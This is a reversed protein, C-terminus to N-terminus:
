KRTAERIGFYLAAALGLSLLPNSAIWSGGHCGSVQPPTVQIARPRLISPMPGMLTIPAIQQGPRASQVSAAIPTGDGASQMITSTVSPVAASYPIPVGAPPYPSTPFVGEPQSPAAVYSTVLASTGPFLQMDVTMPVIDGMGPSNLAYPSQPYFYPGRINNGGYWRGVLRSLQMEGPTTGNPQNLYAQM